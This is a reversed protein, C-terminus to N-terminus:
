SRDPTVVPERKFAPDIRRASVLDQITDVIDRTEEHEWFRAVLWGASERERDHRRDRDANAELKAM